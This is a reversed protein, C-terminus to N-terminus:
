KPFHLVAIDSIEGIPIRVGGSLRLIGPDSDIQEIIGCATLYEGGAQKGDPKFYTVSVERVEKCECLESLIKDLRAKEDEDLERRSETHRAVEAIMADHGVMAAFPAFQAARDERKMKPYKKSVPPAM